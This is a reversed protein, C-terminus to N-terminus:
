VNQMLQMEPNAQETTKNNRNKTENLEFSLYGFCDIFYFIKRRIKVLFVNFAVTAVYDFRITKAGYM